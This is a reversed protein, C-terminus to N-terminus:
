GHRYPEQLRALVRLCWVAVRVRWAPAGRLDIVNVPRRAAAPGGAAPTLLLPPADLPPPPAIAGGGSTPTPTTTPEDPQM